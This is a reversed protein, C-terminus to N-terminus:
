CCRQINAISPILGLSEFKAIIKNYLTDGESPGLLILLFTSINKVDISETDVQYDNPDKALKIKEFHGRVFSSGAIVIDIQYRKKKM